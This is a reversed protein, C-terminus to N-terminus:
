CNHYAAMGSGIAASVAVGAALAGPNLVGTIWGAIGANLFATAAGAAAGAVVQSACGGRFNHINSLIDHGEGSGGEEISKWFYNSQEIVELYILVADLEKEALKTNARMRLREISALLESHNQISQLDYYAENIIDKAEKDDLLNLLVQLSTIDDSEDREIQNLFVYEIIREKEENELESIDISLFKEKLQEFPEDSNFDFNRFAEGLYQNHKIGINSIQEITLNKYESKSSITSENDTSCSAFLLVFVALLSIFLNSSFKILNM